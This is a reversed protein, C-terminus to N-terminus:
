NPGIDCGVFNIGFRRNNRQVRDAAFNGIGEVHKQTGTM